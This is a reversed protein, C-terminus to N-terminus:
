TVLFTVILVYNYKVGEFANEFLITVIVKFEHYM